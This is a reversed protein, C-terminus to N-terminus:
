VCIDVECKICTGEYLDYHLYTKGCKVCKSHLIYHREARLMVEDEDIEMELAVVYGRGCEDCHQLIM